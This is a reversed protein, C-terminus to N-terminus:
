VNQIGNMDYYYRSFFGGGGGGSVVEAWSLRSPAQFIRWPASISKTLSFIESDTLAGQFVLVVSARDLWTQSNTAFDGQAGLVLNGGASPSTSASTDVSSKIGFRFWSIAGTRNDYRCCVPTDVLSEITFNAENYAAVGQFTLQQLTLNGTAGGSTAGLRGWTWGQNSSNRTSLIARDSDAGLYQAARARWISILTLSKNADINFGYDARAGADYTFGSDSIGRAYQGSINAPATSLALNAFSSNPLFAFRLGRGVWYGSVSAPYQPQSNFSTPTSIM